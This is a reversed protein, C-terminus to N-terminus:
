LWLLANFLLRLWAVEWLLAPVAWLLILMDCLWSLPILLDLPRLRKVRPPLLMAVRLLLAGDLM